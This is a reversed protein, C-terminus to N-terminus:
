SITNSFQPVKSVECRVGEVGGTLWAEICRAAAHFVKDLVEWEEPRFTGLVYDVTDAGPPRPGVGIRIRPFEDTGLSEIISKLGNHGGASGKERFRIRGVPLNIDDVVVLLESADKMLGRTRLSAAARGSDNMFTVPKVFLFRTGGMEGELKVFPASTKRIRNSLNFDRRDAESRSRFSVTGSGYTGEVMGDLVLFGANHRTHRYSAGPNGLGVVCLM